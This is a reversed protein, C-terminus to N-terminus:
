MREGTPSDSAVKVAKVDSEIIAQLEKFFGQVKSSINFPVQKKSLTFHFPEPFPRHKHNAKILEFIEIKNKELYAYCYELDEIHIMCLPHINFNPFNENEIMLKFRASFSEPFLATRFSKEYFIIIPFIEIHKRVPFKQDFALPNDRLYRLSQILKNLGYNQYFKIPNSKFFEWSSASYKEQTNIVGSKAEGIIIKKNCRLYIDALEVEGKPTKVKLDDFFKAPPYRFGSFAISLVERLYSEFFKGVTSRYLKLGKDRATSSEYHDCLYDFWFDNLLLDYSKELFFQNDLMYYYSNKDVYM